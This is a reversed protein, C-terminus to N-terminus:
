VLSEVFSRVASLADEALILAYPDARHGGWRSKGDDCGIILFRLGHELAAERAHLALSKGGIVDKDGIAKRLIPDIMRAHAVDLEITRMAIITIGRATKTREHRHGLRIFPYAEEIGVIPDVLLMDRRADICPLVGVNRDGFPTKDAEISAIKAHGLFWPM